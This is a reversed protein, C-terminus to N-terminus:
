RTARQQIKTCGDRVSILDRSPDYGRFSRDSYQQDSPTLLRPAETFYRDWLTEKATPSM